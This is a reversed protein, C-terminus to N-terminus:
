FFQSRATCLYIFTVFLYIHYIIAVEAREQGPRSRFLLLWDGLFRGFCAEM